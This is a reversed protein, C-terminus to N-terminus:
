RSVTKLSFHNKIKLINKSGMHLTDMYNRVWVAGTTTLKNMIGAKWKSWMVSMGMMSHIHIAIQEQVRKTELWLHYSSSVNACSPFNIVCILKFNVDHAFIPFYCGYDLFLSSDRSM